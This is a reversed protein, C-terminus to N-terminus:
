AKDTFVEYFHMYNQAIAEIAEERKAKGEYYFKLANWFITRGVAFGIMGEVGIAARLWSEVKANDEARGLVVCSVEDRGDARAQAVVHRYSEASDMGEIKWVDPEVGAAQFQRIMEVTLAPRIDRDFVEQGINKKEEETPLVLPEALFGRKNAHCWDSLVKLRELQTRNVEADGDPRYRILAKAFVPKIAEIHQAFDDGYQFDFVEQGSKETTLINILGRKEADAHIDAGFEEDVLIAAGDEPVGLEIGRLFGQYIIQKLDLVVAHEDKTFDGTKKFLNKAFFSRHDFPLIYLPKNYGPM